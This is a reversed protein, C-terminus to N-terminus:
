RWHRVVTRPRFLGRRIVTSRTYRYPAEPRYDYTRTVSRDFFVGHYDREIKIQANAYDDVEVLEQIELLAEYVPQSMAVTQKTKRDDNRDSQAMVPSALLVSLFVTVLGTLLLGHKSNVSATGSRGMLAKNLLKM